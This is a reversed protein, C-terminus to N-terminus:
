CRRRRRQRHRRARHRSRPPCVHLQQTWAQHHRFTHLQDEGNPIEESPLLLLQGEAYHIELTLRQAVDNDVLDSLTTPDKHLHQVLRGQCPHACLRHVFASAHGLNAVRGALDEASDGLLLCHGRAPIGQSVRGSLAQVGEVAVEFLLRDVDDAWRAAEDAVRLPALETGVPRGVELHADRGADIGAEHEAPEERQLLELASLADPWCRPGHLWGDAGGTRHPHRNASCRHLAAPARVATSISRLWRRM